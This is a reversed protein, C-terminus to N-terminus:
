RTRYAATAYDTHTRRGLSSGTVFLRPATPSVALANANDKRHAPGDYRKAWLKSGSSAKYAVTAYNPYFGGASSGTVFVKSGGASVALAHAYNIYNRQGPGGYRRAWEEKGTAVRYAITAYDQANRHTPNPSTATVFVRKGGPSIRLDEADGGGTKYGRSWEQHGTRSDYAFTTFAKGGATTGTVLVRGGGPTVGLAQASEYLGKRGYRQSWIQKGSSADFATTLYDPGAGAVFVESGDPSATIANGDVAGKGVWLPAGTSADYAVTSMGPVASGATDGTVFVKSGDPSVTIANAGFEDYSSAWLQKGTAADYAVTVYGSEGGRGTVFIRSGDPSLAIAAAVDHSEGYFPPNGSDYRATWIRKGSAAYAVTVYDYGDFGGSDSGGTVFVRSGKPGVAIARAQDGANKPDDYRKLWLERGSRSVAVAPAIGLCVAVALAGVVVSAYLATSRNATLPNV